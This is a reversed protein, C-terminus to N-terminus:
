TYALLQNNDLCFVRFRRYCSCILVDDSIHCCVWMVALTILKHKARFLPEKDFSTFLGFLGTISLLIIYYRSSNIVMSGTFLIMLTVGSDIPAPLPGCTMVPGEELTMRGALVYSVCM